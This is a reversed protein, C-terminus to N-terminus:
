PSVRQVQALLQRAVAADRNAAILASLEEQAEALAGSEAYAIALSLAPRPQTELAHLEAARTRDLVQFRAEGSPPQPSTISKTGDDATVQWTLIRGAPLPRPPSWRTGSLRPSVAVPRYQDDFVEVVYRSRRMPTWEFVPREEILIRGVPSMPVLTNPAHTRGRLESVSERLEIAAPPIHLQPVRVAAAAPPQKVAPERLVGIAVFVLAAAAAAAVPYVFRRRPRKESAAFRQLDLRDARCTACIELHSEALERDIPTLSNGPEEPNRPEESNRPHSRAPSSRPGGLFESSGGPVGLFQSSGARALAALTEYELHMAEAATLSQGANWLREVDSSLESCARCRAVHDAWAFLEPASADGARFRECQEPTLHEGVNATSSAPFRRAM